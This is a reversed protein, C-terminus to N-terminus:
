CCLQHKDAFYFGSGQFIAFGVIGGPENMIHAISVLDFLFGKQVKTAVVVNM